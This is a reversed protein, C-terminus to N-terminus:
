KNENIIKTLLQINDASDWERYGTESFRLEGKSNIIITTPLAQINLEELNELQIYHLDMNRKKVFGEIEEVSENSALLFEITSNNLLKKAREISPMEKICPGCWTAWVNIFVTKGQYNNLDITNGELDRLKMIEVLTGENKTYAGVNDSKSVCSLLGFLFGALYAILQFRIYIEQTLKMLLSPIM